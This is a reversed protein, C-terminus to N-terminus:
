IRMVKWSGDPQRCATGIAEQVQDDILVETVYDRCYRGDSRQYTQSPTVEYTGGKDPNRWVITEGDPVHELAQGICNQDVNDLHRGIAGGVLVGIITGGIVAATRGDDKDVTSGLTAGAAGGLVAGLVDRNCRGLDLGYPAGYHGYRDHEYKRKYQHKYKQHQKARWGHAPAWPPPDAAVPAAVATVLSALLGLAVLHRLRCTRLTFPTM